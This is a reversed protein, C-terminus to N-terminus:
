PFVRSAAEVVRQAKTVRNAEAWLDNWKKPCIWLDDVSREVFQGVPRQALHTADWPRRAAPTQPFPVITLLQQRNLEKCLDSGSLSLPSPRDTTRGRIQPVPRPNPPGPWSKSPRNPMRSLLPPHSRCLTAGASGCKLPGGRCLDDLGLLSLPPNLM